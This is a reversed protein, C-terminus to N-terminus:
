NCDVLRNNAADRLTAFHGFYLRVNATEVKKWEAMNQQVDRLIQPLKIQYDNTPNNTTVLLYYYEHGDNRGQQLLGAVRERTIVQLAMKISTKQEIFRNSYILM